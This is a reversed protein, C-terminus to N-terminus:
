FPVEVHKEMREYKDQQPFLKRLGFPTIGISDAVVDYSTREVGDADKWTEQYIEGTLAIEMGLKLVTRLQDALNNWVKVNYYSTYKDEWEGTDKNKQRQNVVVRLKLGGNSLVQPDKVLTGVFSITANAM